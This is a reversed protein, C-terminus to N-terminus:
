EENDAKNIKDIQPLVLADLQDLFPAIVDDIKNESLPASEKLWRKLSNYLSEASDELLELGEEKAIELLRKPYYAKLEESM